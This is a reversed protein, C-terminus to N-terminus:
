DKASFAKITAAIFALCYCAIGSCSIYLSTAEAAPYNVPIFWIDAAPEVRNLVFFSIAAILALGGGLICVDRLLKPLTESAYAVIALLLLAVASAAIVPWGLVSKSPFIVSSVIYLVLGVVTACVAIWALGSQKKTKAAM